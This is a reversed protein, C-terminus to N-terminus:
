FRVIIEYIKFDELSAHLVKLRLLIVGIRKKNKGKVTWYGIVLKSTQNILNVFLFKIQFTYREKNFDRWNM